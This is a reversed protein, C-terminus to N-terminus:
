WAFPLLNPGVYAVQLDLQFNRLRKEPHGTARGSNGIGKGCAGGHFPLFLFKYGDDTPGTFM